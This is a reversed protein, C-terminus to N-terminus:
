RCISLRGLLYPRILLVAWLVFFCEHYATDHTSEADILLRYWYGIPKNAGEDMKQLPVCGIQKKCAETDATFDEPWRPVDLVTPGVLIM